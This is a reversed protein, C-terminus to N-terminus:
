MVLWLGNARQLRCGTGGAVAVSGVVAGDQFSKADPCFITMGDVPPGGNFGCQGLNAFLQPSVDNGIFNLQAAMREYLKKLDQEVFTPQVRTM